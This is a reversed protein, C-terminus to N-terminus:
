LFSITKKKLRPIIKMRKHLITILGNGRGKRRESVIANLSMITPFMVLPFSPSSM